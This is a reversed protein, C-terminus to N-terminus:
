QPQVFSLSPSLVWFVFINFFDIYFFIFSSTRREIYSYLLAAHASLQPSQLNPIAWVKPRMAVLSHTIPIVHAGRDQTLSSGIWETFLIIPIALWMAHEKGSPRGLAPETEPDVPFRLELMLNAAWVLM